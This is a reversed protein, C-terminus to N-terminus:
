LLGKRKALINTTFTTFVVVTISSLPMLIAAIIPSLTGQVAFSLGIINYVASIIFSAIIINKSTRSFKIFDKLKIFSEAELIADCAPSFNNINESVTIGVDSQQLAGADNLGDGIMLVKKNKQQLQKIFDLKNQPSQKFLMETNESFINKLNEKESENDGSLLSLNFKNGFSNIIDKLGNRYQNSIKYFGKVENNISIFIKTGSFSDNNNKSNVFEGSGIKIYNGDVTGEIGKGSNEKFDEIINFHETELLKNINGSLPHSSNRVLSKVLMKEYDSLENGEFSINVNKSETITGTKDFVIDTIKSLKEIIHTNKLYFKNRGFIRLASGLTFPTSLALACPCAIILVATFANFALEFNQPLWYFFSILAISIVAATFNKSVSNVLSDISDAKARTKYKTDLRPKQKPPNRWGIIKKLFGFGNPPIAESEYNKDFVENNWLQTLYSQSIEKITEVEIAGGIQKGGAYILEGNTKHEPASEGTVFSYDINASGKILVSDAPILENNKIIIRQGTELKEVPITTEKGNKFITVAIPFYSKYNREFNLTDYTKNQFLKGILLFFVLGALSDMYGADSHSLIEYVSRLFLVGIGITIPVDINVIRKRLGKFASLYYESASYFFVPLSLVINIYGFIIKLEETAFDTISLYEPFSLLMINGFCFGAVGIKYYLKKNVDIKKEKNEEQLNLDPEYGISDLLEVINKLSTEGEKYKIFVKKQLFNVQSQVVGGDLKYLNELIWICSSCHMQPISFTVKSIKGDTFDLLNNILDKDDLFDYNRKISINKKIGPQEDISYYNCLNNTELIEYVTKCGNCCFFKDNIKIENDPCDDGCHYCKIKEAAIKEEITQM